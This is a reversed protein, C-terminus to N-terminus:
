ALRQAAINAGVKKTIEPVYGRNLSGVENADDGLCSLLVCLATLDGAKAADVARCLRETMSRAAARAAAATGADGGAEAVAASMRAEFQATITALAPASIAAIKNTM